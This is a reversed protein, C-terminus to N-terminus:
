EIFEDTINTEELYKPLAPLECWAFIDDTLYSVKDGWWVGNDDYFVVEYDYKRSLVGNYKHIVLYLGYIAPVQEQPNFWDTQKM